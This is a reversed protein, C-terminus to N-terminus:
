AESAWAGYFDEFLAVRWPGLIRHEQAWGAGRAKRLGPLLNHGTARFVGILIGYGCAASFLRECTRATYEWVDRILRYTQAGSLIEISAAAGRM